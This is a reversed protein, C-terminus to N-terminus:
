LSNYFRVDYAYMCFNGEGIKIVIFSQLHEVTPLFVADRRMEMWMKKENWNNNSGAMSVYERNNLFNM